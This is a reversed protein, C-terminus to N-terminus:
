KCDGESQILEPPLDVDLIKIRKNGKVSVKGCSVKIKYTYKKNKKLRVNITIEGDNLPTIVITNSENNLTRILHVEAVNNDSCEVGSIKESSIMMCSQAYSVNATMIVILALIFNKIKDM